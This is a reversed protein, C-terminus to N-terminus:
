ANKIREKRKQNPSKTLPRYIEIRDNNKLKYSNKDILKGFIGVPLNILDFDLFYNQIKSLKIAEIISTDEKVKIEINKQINQSAFVVEINLYHNKEM